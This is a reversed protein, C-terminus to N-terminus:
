FPSYPEIGSVKNETVNPASIQCDLSLPKRPEVAELRQSDTRVISISCSCSGSTKAV